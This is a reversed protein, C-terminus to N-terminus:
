AAIGADKEKIESPIDASTELEDEHGESYDKEKQQREARSGISNTEDIMAKELHDDPEAPDKSHNTGHNAKSFARDEIKDEKVNEKGTDGISENAVTGSKDLDKPRFDKKTNDNEQQSM